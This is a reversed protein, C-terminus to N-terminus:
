GADRPLWRAPVARLDRRAPAPAGTAQGDESFTTAPSFLEAQAGDSVAEVNVGIRDLAGASCSSAASLALRDPSRARSPWSPTPRAGRHLLGGSAAMDSMSAIVPKVTRSGPGGRAVHHGGRDAVGGPSDIRLIIAEIDPDDRAARLSRVWTESGVSSDPPCRPGPRTGFNITGKRSSSASRRGGASASTSAPRVQRYRALDVVGANRPFRSVTSFSIRTSSPM